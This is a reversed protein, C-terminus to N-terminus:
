RRTATRWAPPWWSAGPRQPRIIKMEDTTPRVAAGPLDVVRRALGAQDPMAREIVRSSPVRLMVAFTTAGPKMSVSM